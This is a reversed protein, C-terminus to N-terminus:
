AGRAPLTVDFDVPESPGEAGRLGRVRLTLQKTGDPVFPKFGVDMTVTDALWYEGCVASAMLEGDGQITVKPWSVFMDDDRRVGDIRLRLVGGEDYQEICVAVLVLGGAARHWQALPVVSRLDLPSFYMATGATRAFGDIDIVDGVDQRELRHESMSGNGDGFRVREVRRSEPVIALFWGDVVSPDDSSGDDYCLTVAAHGDVTGSYARRSGLLHEFVRVEGGPTVLQSLARTADREIWPQRVRMAQLVATNASRSEGPADEESPWPYEIDYSVLVYAQDDIEVSDRVKVSPEAIPADPHLKRERAVWDDILPKWASAHDTV